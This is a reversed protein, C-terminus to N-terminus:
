RKPAPNTTTPTPQVAGKKAATAAKAMPTPPNKVPRSANKIKAMVIPNIINKNANKPDEKPGAIVTASRTQPRRMWAIDVTNIMRTPPARM